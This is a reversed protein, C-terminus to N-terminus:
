SSESLESAIYVVGFSNPKGLDKLKTFALYGFINWFRSIFVILPCERSFIKSRKLSCPM